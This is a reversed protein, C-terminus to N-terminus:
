NKWHFLLSFLVEDLSNQGNESIDKILVIDYYEIQDNQDRNKHKWNEIKNKILKGASKLKPQIVSSIKPLQITIGEHKPLKIKIPNEGIIDRIKTNKNLYANKAEEFDKKNQVKEIIKQPTRTILKTGKELYGHKFLFSFILISFGIKTSYTMTKQTIRCIRFVQKM